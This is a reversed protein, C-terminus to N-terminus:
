HTTYEYDPQKQVNCLKPVQSMTRDHHCIKQMQLPLHFTLLPILYFGTRLLALSIPLVTHSIEYTKIVSM